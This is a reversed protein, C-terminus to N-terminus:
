TFGILVVDIHSKLDPFNKEVLTVNTIGLCFYVFCVNAYGKIIVDPFVDRWASRIGIEFDCMVFEAALEENIRTLNQKVLEFLATYTTQKKDPLIAFACPVWIGLWSIEACLIFLQKWFTPAMKFTGDVSVTKARAFVKLMYDTAFFLIRSNGIKLDAKTISESNGPLNFWDTWPNFDDQCKPEHPVFEKKFLNLNAQVNRQTPILAFFQDKQVSTLNNEEIIKEREESYIKGVSKSPNAEVQAYLASMFKPKLHYVSSVTCAHDSLKPWNTLEYKENGDTDRSILIAQAGVYKGVIKCSSCEFRAKHGIDKAKSKLSYTHPEIILKLFTKLGGDSHRDRSEM